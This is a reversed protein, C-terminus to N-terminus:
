TNSYLTCRPTSLLYFLYTEREMMGSKGEWTESCSASTGENITAPVTKFAESARAKDDVVVLFIEIGNYDMDPLQKASAQAEVTVASVTTVLTDLVLAELVLAELVLAELVLAKLVLRQTAVIEDLRSPTLSFGDEFHRQFSSTNDSIEPARPQHVDVRDGPNACDETERSGLYDSVLTGVHEDLWHHQGPLHSHVKSSTDIV